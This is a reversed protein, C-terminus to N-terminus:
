SNNLIAYCLTDDDGTKHHRIYIKYEPIYNKILMPIEWLDDIEHYISIALKPKYRKITKEAGYLARKEAGEIDMKILTVPNDAFINDISNVKAIENGIENIKSTPSSSEDYSIKAERDWLGLNHINIKNRIEPALGSLVNKMKQFNCKDLEFGYILKFKEETKSLFELITDGNFAGADLFIEEETLTLIDMPYGQDKTMIKRFDMRLPDMELYNRIIELVVNKSKDDELIDFLNCIKQKIEDLRDIYFLNFKIYNFCFVEITNWFGMFELQEKIESHYQSAIIVLTDKSLNKMEDSSICVANKYIKKGRKEQSNDIFYDLKIDGDMEYLTRVLFLGLDGAGFVCFKKEKNLSIKRILKYFYDGNRRNVNKIIKEIEIKYKDM